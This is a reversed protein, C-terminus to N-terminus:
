VTSWWYKRETRPDFREIWEGAEGAARNAPDWVKESRMELLEADDDGPMQPTAPHNDWGLLPSFEDDLPLTYGHAEYMDSDEAAAGGAASRCPPHRTALWQRDTLAHVERIFKARARPSSPHTVLQLLGGGSARTRGAHRSRPGSVKAAADSIAAHSQM